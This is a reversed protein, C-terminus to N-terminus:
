VGRMRQNITSEGILLREQEAKANYLRTEQSQLIYSRVVGFPNFMASATAKINNWRKENSYNGTEKAYYATLADTLKISLAVVAIAIAVAPHSKALATKGKDAIEMPNLGKVTAVDEQFAQTTTTSWAKTQSEESPSWAKTPSSDTSSGNVNHIYINYDM